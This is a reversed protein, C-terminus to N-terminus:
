VCGCQMRVVVRLELMRELWGVLPPEQVWLCWRLLLVVQSVLTVEILVVLPRGLVSLCWCLLLLVVRQSGEREGVLEGLWLLQPAQAKVAM